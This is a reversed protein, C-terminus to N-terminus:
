VGLGGLNKQISAALEGAEANLGALEEHIETITQEFDFDDDVEAPAVGVYRGPTLSWDAAEIEKRTVVKVLGKVWLIEADPFRDQLWVINRHFYTARKLQEVIVRRQEDFHKILKGSARRDYVEAVADADALGAAISGARSALRYLLDVQKILGKAREAIPDFANRATHQQDNTAPMSKGAKM